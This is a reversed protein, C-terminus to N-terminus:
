AAPEEDDIPIADVTEGCRHLACARCRVLVLTEKLAIALYWEGAAIRHDWDFGCRMATRASRWERM